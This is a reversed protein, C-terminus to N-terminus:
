GMWVTSCFFLDEIRNSLPSNVLFLGRDKRPFKRRAIRPLGNWTAGPSSNRAKLGCRRNREEPM